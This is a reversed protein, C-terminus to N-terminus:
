NGMWDEVTRSWKKGEEEKGLCNIWREEGREQSRGMMKGEGEKGLM